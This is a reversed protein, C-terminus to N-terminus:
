VINGKAIVPIIHVTKRLLRHLIEDSQDDKSLKETCYNIIKEQHSMM